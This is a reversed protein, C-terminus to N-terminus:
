GVPGEELVFYSGAPGMPSETPLSSAAGAAAGIPTSGPKGSCEALGPQIELLQYFWDVSHTDSEDPMEKSADFRRSDTLPFMQIHYIFEEADPGAYHSSM